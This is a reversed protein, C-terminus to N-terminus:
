AALPDCRYFHSPRRCSFTTSDGEFGARFGFYASSEDLRLLANRHLPRCCGERRDADFSPCVFPKFVPLADDSGAGENGVLGRDSSPDNGDDSVDPEIDECRSINTSYRSSLLLLSEREGCHLAGMDHELLHEGVGHRLSVLDTM